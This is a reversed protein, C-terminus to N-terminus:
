FYSLKKTNKYMKGMVKNFSHILQSPLRKTEVDATVTQSQTWEPVNSLIQTYGDDENTTYM